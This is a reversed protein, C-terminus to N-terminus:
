RNPSFYPRPYLMIDSTSGYLRNKKTPYSKIISTTYEDRFFTERHQLGHTEISM